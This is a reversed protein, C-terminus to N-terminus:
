VEEGNITGEGDALAARLGREGGDPRRKRLVFMLARPSTAGGGIPKVGSGPRAAASLVWVAERRIRKQGKTLTSVLAQM